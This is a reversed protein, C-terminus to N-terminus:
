AVATLYWWGLAAGGGGCVCRTSVSNAPQLADMIYDIDDNYRQLEGFGPDRPGEARGSDGHLVPFM